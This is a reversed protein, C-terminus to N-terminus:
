IEGRFHYTRAFDLAERARSSNPLLAAVDLAMNELGRLRARIEDAAKDYERRAGALRTKVRTVHEEWRERILQTARAYVKDSLEKFRKSGRRTGPYARKIESDILGDVERLFIDTGPGSSEATHLEVEANILAGDYPPRYRFDQRLDNLSPLAWEMSRIMPELFESGPRDHFSVLANHWVGTVDLERAYGRGRSKLLDNIGAAVESYGHIEGLEARKRAAGAEYIRRDDPSM